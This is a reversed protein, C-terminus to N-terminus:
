PCGRPRKEVQEDIRDPLFILAGMCASLFFGELTNAALWDIRLGASVVFGLLCLIAFAFWLMGVGHRTNDGSLVGGATVASIALLVISRPDVSAQTVLDQMIQLLAIVGFLAWIGGILVVLFDRLAERDEM